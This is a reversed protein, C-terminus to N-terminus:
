RVQMVSVVELPDHEVMSRRNKNELHTQKYKIPGTTHLHVHKIRLFMRHFYM